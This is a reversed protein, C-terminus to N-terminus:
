GGIAQISMEKPAKNAAGFTRTAGDLYSDSNFRLADTKAMGAWRAVQSTTGSHLGLWYTGGSGVRVPTPFAFTVWGAARGAAVKVAASTGLLSAPAGSSDSYMVARVTQGGSAAGKGDAWVRLSAVYAGSGAVSFASVRKSNSGMSTWSTGATTQGMLTKARVLTVQDVQFANGSVASSQEIRIGLTNGTGKATAAVAVRKFSSTLTTSVSTDLVVSGSPTKERLFLKVPKGVSSTSAAKLYASAVYTGAATTSSLTPPTSGVNDSLSFKDGSARTAQAVFGGDPAGTVAPRTLSGQFSGWGALDTEFSPNRALNSTPAARTTFRWVKEAAIANGAVDRAGTAIRATYSTAPALDTSPNLTLTTGSWSLTGSVAAGDTSRVLSFAAQTAAEDMPETFSVSVDGSSLVSTSGDAPAITNVQPATSDFRVTVRAETTSVSDVRIVAGEPTAWSSGAPLAADRFHGTGGPRADLLHTGNLGQKRHLLVGDTIGPYSSLFSDLGQPRRYELWYDGTAGPIVVGKLGSGSEYPTLTVTGDSTVTQSRGDLWALAAKQGANFHGLYSSSGMADYDDGYEHHDCTTSLTVQAGAADRCELRNSHWLSLNHGLEHVSVRTDMYGNLWSVRGNVQGLGAWSCAGNRPFYVVEHDYSAPDYGRARAALRARDLLGYYDNCDASDITMWPTAAATTGMQAFSNEAFWNNDTSGLQSVAQEPTVSDPSTSHVLMVLVRRQGMTPVVEAAAVPEIADVDVSTGAVKGKVRVRYGPKIAPKEKLKLKQRKKGTDIWYEYFPDPMRDVHVVEYRGELTEQQAEAVPPSVAALLFVFVLGAAPVCAARATATRFHRLLVTRRSRPSM